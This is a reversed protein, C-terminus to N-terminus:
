VGRSLAAVGTRAVDILGLAEAVLGRYIATMGMVVGLLLSLGVCTLVFRGPSHRIDRWALNM